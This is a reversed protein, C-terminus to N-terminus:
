LDNSYLMAFHFWTKTFAEFSHSWLLLMGPHNWDLWQTNYREPSSFFHAAAEEEGRAQPMMVDEERMEKREGLGKQFSM